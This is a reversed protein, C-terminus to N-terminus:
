GAEAPKGLLLRRAKHLLKREDAYALRAAARDLEVWEATLVENNDGSIRGGVAQMIFHHVTKHVRKDEATFWFDVSDLEAVIEAVIGTEERVERIAAQAASEGEELHGKPLSWVVRGRRDRHSILAVRPVPGDPDIVIGGASVEDSTPLRRRARRHKSKSSPQSSRSRRATESRRDTM